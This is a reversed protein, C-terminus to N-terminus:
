LVNAREEIRYEVTGISQFSRLVRDSMREIRLDLSEKNECSIHIGLKMRVLTEKLMEV